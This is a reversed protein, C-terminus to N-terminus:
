KKEKDKIIELFVDDLTPAKKTFEAIDIRARELSTLLKALEAVSGDTSVALSLVEDDQTLDVGQM